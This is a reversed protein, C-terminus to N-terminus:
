DFIEPGSPLMPDELEEPVITVTITGLKNSAATFEADGVDKGKAPFVYIKKEVSSDPLTPATVVIDSMSYTKSNKVASSSESFRMRVTKSGFAPDKTFSINVTLSNEEGVTKNTITITGCDGEGNSTWYSDTPSEWAPPDANPNWTGKSGEHFTFEMGTWSVTVNYTSNVSLPSDGLIEGNTIPEGNSAPQMDGDAENGVPEQSVESSGTSVDGESANSEDTPETAEPMESEAAPDSTESDDSQEVPASTEMEASEETPVSKDAENTDDTPDAEEKTYSEVATESTDEVTAIPENSGDDGETAYVIANTCILLSLTLLLVIIKKM